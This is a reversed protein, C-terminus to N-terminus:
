KKIKIYILGLTIILAGLIKIVVLAILFIVTIAIIDKIINYNM